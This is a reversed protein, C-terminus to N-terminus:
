LYKYRKQSSRLLDVSFDTDFTGAKAAAATNNDPEPPAADGGFVEALTCGSSQDAAACAKGVGSVSANTVCSKAL